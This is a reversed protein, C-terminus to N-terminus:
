RQLLQCPPIACLVVWRSKGGKWFKDLLGWVAIKDDWSRRNDSDRDQMITAYGAFLSNPIGPVPLPISLTSSVNQPM